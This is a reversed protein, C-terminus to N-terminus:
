AQLRALQEPSPFQAVFYRPPFLGEDKLLEPVVEVVRPWPVMAVCRQDEPLDVDLFLVEDVEPLLAPADKPWPAYSCFGGDQLEMLTYRAVYVQRGQKAHLQELKASQEEYYLLAAVRHAREVENFVASTPDAHFEEIRGRRIVLPAPNQPRPETRVIEDARQLMQRVGEPDDSGAVLLTLRNPLTVVPEGKLGLTEFLGPLLIRSSDYDDRWTGRFFGGENAFAPETCDRLRALGLKFIDQPSRRWRRVMDENVMSMFGPSDIVVTKVFWRSIPETLATLSKNSGGIQLDLSSLSFYAKERVATVVRPAATEFAMDVVEGQTTLMSVVNDLITERLPGQAHCFADYANALFARHSGNRIEFTAPLYEFLAGGDAPLRELILAAFREKSPQASSEAV